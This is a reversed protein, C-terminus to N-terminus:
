VGGASRGRLAVNGASWRVRSLRERANALGMGEAGRWTGPQGPGSKPAVGLLVANEAAVATGLRGAITAKQIDLYRELFEM